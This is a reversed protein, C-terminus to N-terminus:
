KPYCSVDSMAKTKLCSLNKLESEHRELIKTHHQDREIIVAMQVNLSDVSDSIRDMRDSIQSLAATARTVTFIVGGAIMSQFGWGVFQQWEM